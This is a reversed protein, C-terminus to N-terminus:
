AAPDPATGLPSLRPLAFAFAQAVAEDITLNTTDLLLADEAKRLPAAERARDRADRAILDELVRKLDASPDTQRLEKWRREARVLPDAEVFIKVPAEPCVVTGIDRGDLVAGAAGQPPFRAFNRQWELLAKRVEPIAAVRSAASGAADSRLAPSELDEPKLAAALAPASAADGGAAALKAGVARYLLGTDLHAYGLREALRRALSGKGSAAPGDVAVIRSPSSSALASIAADKGFRLPLRLSSSSPAVFAM